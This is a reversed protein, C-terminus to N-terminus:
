LYTTLMIRTNLVRDFIYMPVNQLFLYRCQRTVIKTFCYKTNVTWQTSLTRIQLKEPGGKGATPSFASPYATRIRSFVSWFFVGFVLLFSWWLYKVLDLICRQINKLCLCINYFSVLFSRVVAFLLGALIQKNLTLM